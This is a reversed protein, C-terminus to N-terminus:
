NNLASSALRQRVEPILSLHRCPTPDNALRQFVANKLKRFSDLSMEMLQDETRAIGLYTYYHAAANFIESDPISIAKIFYFCPNYDEKVREKQYSISLEPYKFRDLVQNGTATDGNLFSSLSLNLANLDDNEMAYAEKLLETAQGFNGEFMHAYAANVLVSSFQSGETIAKGNDYAWQRTSESLSIADNIKGQLVQLAILNGYSALSKNLALANKYYKEAEELNGVYLQANGSNNLASYKILLHMDPGDSNFARNNLDMAKDLLNTWRAGPGSGLPSSREAQAWMSYAEALALLRIPHNKWEDNNINAELSRVLIRPTTSDNFVHRFNRDSREEFVKAAVRLNAALTPNQQKITDLKGQVLTHRDAEGGLLVKVFDVYKPPPRSETYILISLTTFIFALSSGYMIARSQFFKDRLFHIVIKPADSFNKGGIFVMLYSVFLVLIPPIALRVSTLYSYFPVFAEHSQHHYLRVSCVILAITAVIVTLQLLALKWDIKRSM